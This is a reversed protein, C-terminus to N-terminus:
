VRAARITSMRSCRPTTPGPSPALGRSTNRLYAHWELSVAGDDPDVALEPNPISPPLSLLLERVLNLAIPSVPPAAAGDWGPHSHAKALKSFELQDRMPLRAVIM